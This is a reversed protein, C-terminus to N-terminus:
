AASNSFYEKMPAFYYDLWGQKYQEGQGDPILTHMLTIKTGGVAEEVLVELISDQSGEPFEDTRWTQLIRHYPEMELTQGKIYGDWATFCGGAYPNIDAKSGTFQGHAESDLWAKFVQDPAAPLVTSVKLSETM